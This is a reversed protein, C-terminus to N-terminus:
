TVMKILAMRQTRLADRRLRAAARQLAAGMEISQQEIGVCPERNMELGLHQGVDVRLSRVIAEPVLKCAVDVAHGGRRRLM